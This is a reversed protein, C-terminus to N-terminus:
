LNTSSADRGDSESMQLKSSKCTFFFFASSFNISAELFNFSNHHPGSSFYFALSLSKRTVLSFAFFTNATFLFISSSHLDDLLLAKSFDQQFICFCRISMIFLCVYNVSISHQTLCRGYHGKPCSNCCYSKM